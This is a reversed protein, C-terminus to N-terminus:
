GFQELKTKWREWLPCEKAQLDFFKQNHSLHVLHCLEHIIVYEICGKPTKILEPNLIIKGQPTCSGWRTKMDQMYLGTPEVNYKKFKEILPAAIAEFKEKSKVRYWDNLLKKVNSKNKTKVQIYRGKYSVENKKDELVEIRYQKGLYYHSEGSVYKKDNLKPHFTLFYNQQKIIWPARKRVKTEVLEMASNEPAKVVIEMDPNVTIGLTKRKTYLLTYKIKKSGFDISCEM